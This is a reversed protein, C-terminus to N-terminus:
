QKSRNQKTLVIKVRAKWCCFGADGFEGRVKGGECAKGALTTQIWWNKPSKLPSKMWNPRSIPSIPPYRMGIEIPLM